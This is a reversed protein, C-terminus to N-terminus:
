EVDGTQSYAYDLAVIARERTIGRGAVIDDTETIEGHYYWLYAVWDGTDTQQIRLNWGADAIEDKIAAAASEYDDTNYAGRMWAASPLDTVYKM